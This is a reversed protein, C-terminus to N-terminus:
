TTLQESSTPTLKYLAASSLGNGYGVAVIAGLDKYWSPYTLGIGPPRAATTTPQADSGDPNVTMIELGNLSGNGFAIRPSWSWDPRSATPNPTTSPPYILQPDTGD